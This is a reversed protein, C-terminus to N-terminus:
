DFVSFFEAFFAPANVSKAVRHPAPAPENRHFITNGTRQAAPDIHIQISGDEYSCLNPQFISAAALPDHFTIKDRQSFWIEAMKLVLPVPPSTFRKRVEDAPM